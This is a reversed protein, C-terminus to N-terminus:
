GGKLKFSILRATVLCELRTGLAFRTLLKTPHQLKFDVSDGEHLVLAVFMALLKQHNFNSSCLVLM